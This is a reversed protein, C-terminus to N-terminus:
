GPKGLYGALDFNVDKSVADNKAANMLHVSLFDCGIEMKDM